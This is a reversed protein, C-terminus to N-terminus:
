DAQPLPRKKVRPYHYWVADGPEYVEVDSTRDYYTKMRVASHGLTGRVEMHVEEMIDQLHQVYGTVSHPIEDDHRQIVLDVPVRVDRGLMMKTPSVGASEHVASRSAFLAYPLYEKWDRQHNSTYMALSNLLTRNFREVMGDSQPYGPTTRTKCIRMLRVNRCVGARSGFTDGTTTRIPM